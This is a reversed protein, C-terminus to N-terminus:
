AFRNRFIKGNHHQVKEGNWLSLKLGSYKTANSCRCLFSFQYGNDDTMLVVGAKFCDDCDQQRIEEREIKSKAAVVLREFTIKQLDEALLSRIGSIIAGAPLSTREFEEVFTVARAKSFPRDQLAFLRELEDAIQLKNAETLSSQMVEYM